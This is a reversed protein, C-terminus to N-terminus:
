ESTKLLARIEKEKDCNIRYHVRTNSTKYELILGKLTLEELARKVEATTDRINQELLWWEVIGELTDGAGTNAVLYSLVSHRIEPKDFVSM